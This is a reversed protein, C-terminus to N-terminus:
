LPKERAKAVVSTLAAILAAAEYPKRVITVSKFAPPIMTTDAYGTAFVFPVGRRTLEEAVPLSTEAGLNVDLIAVDPAFDRLRQM